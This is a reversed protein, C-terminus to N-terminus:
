PTTQGNTNAGTDAPPQFYTRVAGRQETSEVGREPATQVPDTAQAVDSPQVGSQAADSIKVVPASPNAKLGQRGQDNATQAQVSLDNPPVDLRSTLDGFPDGGAEQGVASRKAKNPDGEPGPVSITSAAGQVVGIQNPDAEGPIDPIYGNGSEGIDGGGGGPTAPANQQQQLQDLEKALADQSIVGNKADGVAKALDQMASRTDTYVNRNLARATRDESVALPADTNATDVAAKELAAGLERKAQRSLQDSQTALKDLKAMADDYNGARLANGVDSAAATSRLSDGLKQLAAQAAQSQAAQAQLDAMTQPSAASSIAQDIALSPDTAADANTNDADDATQAAQDGLGVLTTVEVPRLVGGLSLGVVILSALLGLAALQVPRWGHPYAHLASLGSAARWADDLQAPALAGGLRGDLVEAATAFRNDTRLQRDAVRAARVLSPRRVVAIAAGLLVFALILWLIVFAAGLLAGALASIAVVVLAERWWLQVRLAGLFHRLEHHDLGPAPSSPPSLPATTTAM